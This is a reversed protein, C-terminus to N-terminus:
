ARVFRREGATRLADLNDRMFELLVGVLTIGESGLERRISILVGSLSARGLGLV